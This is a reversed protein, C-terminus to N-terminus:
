GSESIPAVARSTGVSQATRYPSSPTDVTARRAGCTVHTITMHAERARTTPPHCPETLIPWTPGAAAAVGPGTPHPRAGPESRVRPRYPVAREARLTDTGDRSFSSGRHPSGEFPPSKEIISQTSSRHPLRRGPDPTDTCSLADRLPLPSSGARALRLRSSRRRAHRPHLSPSGLAVGGEDRGGGSGRPPARRRHGPPSPRAGRSPRHRCPAQRSCPATWAGGYNRPVPPPDALGPSRRPPHPLPPVPRHRHHPRDRTLAHKRHTGVLVPRAPALGTARPPRSRRRHHADAPGDDHRLRLVKSSYRGSLWLERGDATVGGM